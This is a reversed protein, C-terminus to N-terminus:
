IHIRKACTHLLKSKYSFINNKCCVICKNNQQFFLYRKFSLLYISYNFRFFPSFLLYNSLRNVNILKLYFSTLFNLDSFFIIQSLINYKFLLLKDTIVTSGSKLCTLTNQILVLFSLESTLPSYAYNWTVRWAYIAIFFSTSFFLQYLWFLVM